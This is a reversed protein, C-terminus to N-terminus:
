PALEDRLADLFARMTADRRQALARGHATNMAPALKLLKREFHDLSFAKDDLTRADGFPTESHWLAAGMSGGTAFCRAIGIAGIAELRDADQLVRSAFTSPARGGSFSHEAVATAIEDAHDALGARAAFAPILGAAREACQAADPHNKPLYVLDHLWAAAVCITVTRADAGEARAIEEARHAVRRIHALDHAADRPTDEAALHATVHTDITVGGPQRGVSGCSAGGAREDSTAHLTAVPVSM